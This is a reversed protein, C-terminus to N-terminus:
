GPIRVAMCTIDDHQRTAGVFGDVAAMLNAVFRASTNVSAAHLTQLMRTEGFEQETENEAEILGDTFIFLLDGSALNTVGSEYHALNM